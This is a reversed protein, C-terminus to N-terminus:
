FLYTILAYVFGNVLDVPLNGIFQSLVYPLAGYMGDDYEFDFVRLEKVM